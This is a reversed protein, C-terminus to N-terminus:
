QLSNTLVNNNTSDQIQNDGTSILNQNYMTNNIIDENNPTTNNITTQPKHIELYEEINLTNGNNEM